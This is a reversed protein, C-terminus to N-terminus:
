NYLYNFSMPEMSHIFLTEKKISEGFTNLQKVRDRAIHDLVFCIEM